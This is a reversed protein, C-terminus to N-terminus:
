EKLKKNMRYEQITTFLIITLFVVFFIQIYPTGVIEYTFLSFTNIIVGFLYITVILPFKITLNPELKFYIFLMLILFAFMVFLAELM